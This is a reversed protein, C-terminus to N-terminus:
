NLSRCVAVSLASLVLDSDALDACVSLETAPRPRVPVPVTPSTSRFTDLPSFKTGKDRFRCTEQESDFFTGGDDSKSCHDLPVSKSSEPQRPETSRNSGRAPRDQQDAKCQDAGFRQQTDGSFRHLDGTYLGSQRRRPDQSGQTSSIEEAFSSRAGLRDALTMHKLIVCSVTRSTIHM